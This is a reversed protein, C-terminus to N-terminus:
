SRRRPKAATLAVLRQVLSPDRLQVRQRATMGLHEFIEAAWEGALWEQDRDRIAQLVICALLQRYRSMLPTILLSDESSPHLLSYSM